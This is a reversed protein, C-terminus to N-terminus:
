VEKYIISKMYDIIDDIIYKCANNRIADGQLDKNRSFEDFEFYELLSWDNINIFEVDDDTFSVSAKHNVLYSYNVTAKSGDINSPNISIILTNNKNLEIEFIILALDKGCRMARRCHKYQGFPKVNDALLQAYENIIVMSLCSRDKTIEDLLKITKNRERNLWIKKFPHKFFNSTKYENNISNNVSIIENLFKIM